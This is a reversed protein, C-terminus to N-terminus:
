NVTSYEKAIERSLKFIDEIEALNDACISSDLSPIDEIESFIKPTVGVNPHLVFPVGSLEDEEGFSPASALAHDENGRVDPNSSFYGLLLLACKYMGFLLIAIATIAGISPLLQTDTLVESISEAMIFANTVLGNKFSILQNSIM